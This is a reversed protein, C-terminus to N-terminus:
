EPLRDTLVLDLGHLLAERNSYPGPTYARSAIGLQALESVGWDEQNVQHWLEVADDPTFGPKKVESPHFLFDCRVHTLDVRKPWLTYSVVYDPHVSLLVNPTIWYYYVLRRQEATLNPMAARATDGSMTMTKIGENLMMTGGLYCANAPENDGSMYHTLKKLAPHIVPCHLCESYNQVLLKWNAKVEYEVRKGIVLEELQWNAFKGRVSGLQQALPAPENALSLWVFGDWTECHAQRLPYDQVRFGRVDAMHPAGVLQGDLAYTWAHYPCAIRKMSGAPETCMRTGRHRCVNYHARVKGTEDRTVILSEPGIERLFYDGPNKVDSARGVCLWKTYFVREMEERFYGPDVYVHAPLTLRPATM